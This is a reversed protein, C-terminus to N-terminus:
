EWSTTATEVSGRAAESLLAERQRGLYNWIWTKIKKKQRLTWSCAAGAITAAAAHLTNEFKTTKTRGM